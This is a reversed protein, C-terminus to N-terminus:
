FNRTHLASQRTFFQNLLLHLIKLTGSDLRTLESVDEEKEVDSTTIADENDIAVIEIQRPFHQPLLKTNIFFRGRTTSSLDTIKM